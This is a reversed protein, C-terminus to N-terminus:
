LVFSIKLYYHSKIKSFIRIIKIFFIHIFLVRSVEIRSKKFLDPLIRCTEIKIIAKINRIIYSVITNELISKLSNKLLKIM